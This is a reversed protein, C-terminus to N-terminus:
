KATAVGVSQGAIAQGLDVSLADLKDATNTVLVMTTIPLGAEKIAAWNVSALKDGGDVVDAEKVLIDFPAGNLSVTDIGMHVLIELGDSRKLGIAHGQVLTVTGAVPSLVLGGDPEIAFGDGMMKGAFVPDSVSSLDIVAGDVPAYLKNDDAVTKKKGFGFM